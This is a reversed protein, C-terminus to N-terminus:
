VQRQEWVVSWLWKPCPIRCQEAEPALVCFRDWQLRSLADVVSNSVGPIHKAVFWSNQYLGRLVLHRLLRLVPPSNASQQNVAQVVGMNDCNFYVARNRLRDGWIEMALVIPFLELLALNSLLSAERWSDPWPGACWQGQFYAGYGHGASADTFLEFDVSDAMPEMWVLRGNYTAM